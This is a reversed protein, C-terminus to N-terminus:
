IDDRNTVRSVEDMTTIGGAAKTIGGGRLTVMGNSVAQSKVSSAKARQLILERIPEDIILLEFIGIRERYGTEMCAPCGRGKFLKLPAAEDEALGWSQLDALTPSYPM